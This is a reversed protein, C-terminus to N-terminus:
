EKDYYPEFAIVNKTDSIDANRAEARTRYYNRRLTTAFGWAGGFWVNVGWGKDGEHQLNRHLARGNQDRVTM